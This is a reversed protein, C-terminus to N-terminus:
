NAGSADFSGRGTLGGGAGGFSRGSSAPVFPALRAKQADILWYLQSMVGMTAGYM